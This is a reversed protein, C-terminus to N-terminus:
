IGPLVPQVPGAMPRAAAAPSRFQRVSEELERMFNDGNVPANDQLARAIAQAMRRFFGDPGEFTWEAIKLSVNKVLELMTKVFPDLMKVLDTVLDLLASAIAALPPLFRDLLKSIEAEFNQQSKMLGTIDPEFKNARDMDRFFRKSEGEVQQIAIAGNFQAYRKGLQEAAEELNLLSHAAASAGAGLLPISKASDAVSRSFGRVDNNIAMVGFNNVAALGKLGGNVAEGAAGFAIVGAGVAALAVGAVVGGVALEAEAAEAAGAEDGAAEPLPPAKAEGPEPPAHGTSDHGKALEEYIRELWEELAECCQDYSEAGAVRDDVRTETDVRTRGAAPPEPPRSAADAEEIQIRLTADDSM